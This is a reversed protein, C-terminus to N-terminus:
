DAVQMCYKHHIFFFYFYSLVFINGYYRLKQIIPPLIQLIFLITPIWHDTEVEQIFKERMHFSGASFIVGLLYNSKNDVGIHSSDLKIHVHIAM